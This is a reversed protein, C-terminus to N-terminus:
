PNKRKSVEAIGSLATMPSAVKPNTTELLISWNESENENTAVVGADLVANPVASRSWHPVVFSAGSKAVALMVASEAVYLTHVSLPGPRPLMSLVPTELNPITAM